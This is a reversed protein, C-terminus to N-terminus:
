KTFTLQCSDRESNMAGLDVPDEVPGYLVIVMDEELSGGDVVIRYSGEVVVDTRAHNQDVALRIQHVRVETSGEM